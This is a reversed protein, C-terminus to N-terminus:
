GAASAETGYPITNTRTRTGHGRHRPYSSHTTSHMTSHAINKFVIGWEYKMNYFHQVQESRSFGM